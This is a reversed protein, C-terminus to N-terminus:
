TAWRSSALGPASCRPARCPRLTGLRGGAGRGPFTSVARHTAGGCAATHVAPHLTSTASRKPTRGEVARRPWNRDVKRPGCLIPSRFEVAGGAVEATGAAFEPLSSDSGASTLTPATQPIGIAIGCVGICRSRSGNSLASERAARTSGSNYVRSRAARCRTARTATSAPRAGSGRRQNRLQRLACRLGRRLGAAPTPCGRALRATRM